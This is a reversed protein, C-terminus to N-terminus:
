YGKYSTQAGLQEPSPIHPNLVERQDWKEWETLGRHGPGGSMGSYGAPTGGYHTLQQQPPLPQPQPPPMFNVTQPAGGLGRDSFDGYGTDPTENLVDLVDFNIEPLRFGSAPLAGGGARKKGDGESRLVPIGLKDRLDKIRAANAPSVKEWDGSQGHGGVPLGLKARLAVMARLNQEEFSVPDECECDCCDNVPGCPDCQPYEM